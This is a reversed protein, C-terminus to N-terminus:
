GEDKEKVKQLKSKNMIINACKWTVIGTPFCLSLGMEIENM